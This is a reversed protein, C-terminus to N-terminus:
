EATVDRFSTYIVQKQQAKITYRTRNFQRCVQLSPGPKYILLSLALSAPYNAWTGVGVPLRGLGMAPSLPSGSASLHPPNTLCAWWTIQGILAQHYKWTQKGWSAPLLTSLSSLIWMVKGFACSCLTYTNLNASFGWGWSYFIKLFLSPFPSKAAHCVFLCFCHLRWSLFSPSFVLIWSQIGKTLKAM